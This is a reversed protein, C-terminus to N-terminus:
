SAVGTTYTELFLNLQTTKEQTLQGFQVGCQRTVFPQFFLRSVDSRSVPVDYVVRCPVKSLHFDEGSVFVDLQSAQEDSDNDTIYEFALGGTSINKLRGVRAFGAGLAAFANDVALFRIHRRQEM